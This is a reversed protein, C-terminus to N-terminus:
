CGCRGGYTFMVMGIVTALIAGIRMVRHTFKRGLASSVAGVGFMLPVTGMSFLFMSVGGALPTGTFLAYRQM